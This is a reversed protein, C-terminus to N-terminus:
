GKEAALLEDIQNIAATAGEQVGMDIVRQLEDADDYTSVYTAHTGLPDSMFSYANHSIPMDLRPELNADAFGDDFTFSHPEDVSSIEWWGGYREGDPGTMYYRSRHGPILTHEVFTAPHTPPGWIRELLNRDAYIQWVRRVPAAFHASITLSHTGDDRLFSTVPM